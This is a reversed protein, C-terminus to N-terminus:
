QMTLQKLMPKCSGNNACSSPVVSRYVHLALYVDCSGHSHGSLEVDMSLKFIPIEYHWQEVDVVKKSLRLGVSM